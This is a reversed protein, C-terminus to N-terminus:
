ISVVEEIFGIKSGNDIIVPVEKINVQSEEKHAFKEARLFYLRKDKEEKDKVTVTYTNSNKM